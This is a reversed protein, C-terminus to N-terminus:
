AAQMLSKVAYFPHKSLEPYREEQSIVARPLSVSSRFVPEAVAVIRGRPSGELTGVM